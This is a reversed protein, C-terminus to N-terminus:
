YIYQLMNQKKPTSLPPPNNCPATWVDLTNRGGPFVTTYTVPLSPSAFACSVNGFPNCIASVDLETGSKRVFVYIIM